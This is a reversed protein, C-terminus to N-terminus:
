FGVVFKPIPRMLGKGEANMKKLEELQKEAVNLQKEPINIASQRAAALQVRDFAGSATEWQFNNLTVSDPGQAAKERERREDLGNRKKKNIMADDFEARARGQPAIGLREGIVAAGIKFDDWFKGPNNFAEDMSEGFDNVLAVLRKLTSELSKAGEDSSLFLAGLGGLLGGAMGLAPLSRMIAGLTGSFRLGAAAAGMQAVKLTVYGGTMASLVFVFHQGDKTLGQMAKTAAMMSNTSADTAPKFVGAIERGLMQYAIQQRTAEVTNELGENRLARMSSAVKLYAAVAVGAGITRARALRQEEAALKQNEATLAKTADKQKGVEVTMDAISKRSDTIRKQLAPSFMGFARDDASEAILKQLEARAERLELVTTM